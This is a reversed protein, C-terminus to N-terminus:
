QPKSELVMQVQPLTVQRFRMVEPWSRNDAKNAFIEDPAVKAAKAIAYGLVVGGLGLQSKEERSSLETIPVDLQKSMAGLLTGEVPAGGTDIANDLSLLFTQIFLVQADQFFPELTKGIEKERDKNPDDIKEATVSKAISKLKDNIGRVRTILVEQTRDMEAADRDYNKSDTAAQSVRGVGYGAVLLVLAISVQWFRRSM